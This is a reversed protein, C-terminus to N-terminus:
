QLKHQNNAYACIWYASDAAHRLSAHQQLCAVFRCVAEQWAHSVFWRPYQAEADTALLEVLSCTFRFTAPKIIWASTHYLNFTDAHLPQEFDPSGSFTEVWLHGHDKIFGLILLLQQLNIGRHETQPIKLPCNGLSDYSVLSYSAAQLADGPKLQVAGRSLLTNEFCGPQMKHAASIADEMTA